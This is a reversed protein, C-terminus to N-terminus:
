GGPTGLVLSANLGGFGFSISLVRRYVGTRGGRLLGPLLAAIEPDPRASYATHLHKLAEGMEGMRFNVWGLSDLIFPDDPSLKMAKEILDKAEVLRNTKEALTYGRANYASPSSTTQSPRATM